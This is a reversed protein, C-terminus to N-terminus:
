WIGVRKREKATTVVAYLLSDAARFSTENESERAACAKERFCLGTVDVDQWQLYKQRFRGCRYQGIYQQVTSPRAPLGAEAWCFLRWDFYVPRDVLCVGIVLRM